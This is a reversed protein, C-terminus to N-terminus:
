SRKWPQTGKRIRGLAASVRAAAQSWFTLYYRATRYSERPDMGTARYRRFYTQLNPTSM